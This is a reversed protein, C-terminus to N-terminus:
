QLIEKQTILVPYRTLDFREAIEDIPLAHLTLDEAYAQLTEVDAQSKVNTVFGLAHIGALHMRNASLWRTSQNDAGVIFFPRSVPVSHERNNIVGVQLSSTIPFRNALSPKVILKPIPTSAAVEKLQEHPLKLGIERGGFDAIVEPQAVVPLSVLMLAFTQFIIKM